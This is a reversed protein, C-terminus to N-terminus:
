RISEFAIQAAGIVGAKDSLVPARTIKLGSPTITTRRSEFQRIAESLLAAHNEIVGGGIAIHDPAYLHAVHSLGVALAATRRSQISPTTTASDLSGATIAWGGVLAELCGRGGCRCAPADASTDVVLHGIHGPGGRTHEVIAGSLIVCAAVGTGISVYVFRAPTPQLARWQAYGACVVDNRVVVAQVDLAAAVFDRVSNGELVPLNVARVVRTSGPDLIGPVAVGCIRPAPTVAPRLDDAADALKASFDSLPADAPTAFLTSAIVVGQGDVIGVRTSTGGIDVAWAHYCESDSM